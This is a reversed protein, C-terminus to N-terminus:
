LRNRSIAHIDSIYMIDASGFGFISIKRLHIRLNGATCARGRMDYVLKTRIQRVTCSYDKYCRVRLFLDTAQTCTVNIAGRHYVVKM